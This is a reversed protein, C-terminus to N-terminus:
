GCNRRRGCLGLGFGPGGGRPPSALRRGGYAPGAPAM